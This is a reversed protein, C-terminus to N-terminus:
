KLKLSQYINSKQNSSIIKIFGDKELENLYNSATNGSVNLFSAVEKRTLTQHKQFMEKLENLKRFKSKLNLPSDIPISQKLSKTEKEKPLQQYKESLENISLTQKDSHFLRIREMENRLERINGQWPLCKMHIIAQEEFSIKPLNPNQENLFYNILAAIDETRNRLPPIEIILRELRFRLDERFYGNKVHSELNRNTAAVIKCNIRKIDNSGIPRFEGSELLRLLSIQMQPSIEGIEDLFVVGDKAQEFIGKHDHIAGTFSGKKHGFLESQLLHDSIAGCNIPLFVKNRLPSAQWIAKAVLEKGTGTEGVILVTKDIKAYQNILDKIKLTHNSQGIIFSKQEENTNSSKSYDRLNVKLTRKQSYNRIDTLSIEPSLKLEIDFRRNLEFDDAYQSFRDFYYQAQKINGKLHNVRFWFFDDFDSENELKKKNILFYEAANVNGNALDSRLLNYSFFMSEYKTNTAKDAYKQAWYLSRKPNNKVLNIYSLLNWNEIETEDIQGLEQNLNFKCYGEMLNIDKELGTYFKNNKYDTISIMVDDICGMEMKKFLLVISLLNSFKNEEFYTKYKKLQQNLKEINGIQCLGILYVWLTINYRGSSPSLINLCKEIELIRQKFKATTSLLECKAQIHLVKFEPALNDATIKKMVSYINNASAIRDAAIYLLTLNFLYILQGEIEHSKFDFNKLNEITEFHTFKGKVTDRIRQIALILPHEPNLNLFNNIATNFGIGNKYDELYTQLSVM